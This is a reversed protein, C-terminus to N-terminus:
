WFQRHGSPDISNLLMRAIFVLLVVVAILVLSNRSMIRGFNVLSFAHDAIQRWSIRILVLLFLVGFIAHLAWQSGSDLRRLLDPRDFQLALFFGWVASLAAIVLLIMAGVKYRDGKCLNADNGELRCQPQFEVM